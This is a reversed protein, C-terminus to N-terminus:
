AERVPTRQEGSHVAKAPVDIRASHHNSQVSVFLLGKPNQSRDRYQFCGIDRLFIWTHESRISFAVRVVAIIASGFQHLMKQDRPSKDFRPRTAHRNREAAPVM